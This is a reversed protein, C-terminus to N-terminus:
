KRCPPLWEWVREHKENLKYIAHGKEVAELRFKENAQNTGSCSGCILGLTFLALALMIIEAWWKKM